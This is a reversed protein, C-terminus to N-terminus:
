GDGHAARREHRAGVLLRERLHEFARQRHPVFVLPRGFWFVSGAGRKIGRLGNHQTALHRSVAREVPLHRGALPDDVAEGGSGCARLVTGCIGFGRSVFHVLHATGMHGSVEVGVEALYEGARRGGVALGYAVRHEVAVFHAPLVERVVKGSAELGGEAIVGSRIKGCEESHGSNAAGIGVTEEPVEAAEDGIFDRVGVHAAQACRAVVVAQACPELAISM